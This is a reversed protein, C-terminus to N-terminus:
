ATEHPFLLTLTTFLLTWNHCRPNCASLTRHPAVGFMCRFWLGKCTMLSGVVPLRKNRDPLHRSFLVDRGRGDAQKQKASAMGFARQGTQKDGKLVIQERRCFTSSRRRETAADASEENHQIAASQSHFANREASWYWSMSVSCSTGGVIREIGNFVCSSTDQGQRSQIVGVAEVKRRSPKTKHKAAQSFRVVYTSRLFFHNWQNYFPNQQM